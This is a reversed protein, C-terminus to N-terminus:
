KFSCLSSWIRRKTGNLLFSLSSSDRLGARASTRGNVPSPNVPALNNAPNSSHKLLLLEMNLVFDGANTTRTRKIEIQM